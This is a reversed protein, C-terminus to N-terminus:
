GLDTEFDEVVFSSDPLAATLPDAHEDCFGLHLHRTWGEACEYRGSMRGVERAMDEMSILYSDIGQSEDLWEKQSRHLALMDRKEGIV